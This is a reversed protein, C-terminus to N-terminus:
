YHFHHVAPKPRRNPADLCFGPIAALPFLTGAALASENTLLKETRSFDYGSV